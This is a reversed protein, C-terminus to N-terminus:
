ASPSIAGVLEGRTRAGATSVLANVALTVAVAVAAATVALAIVRPM